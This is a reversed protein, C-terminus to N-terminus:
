RYKKLAPEANKIVGFWYNRFSFGNAKAIVRESALVERTAVDFWVLYVAGCGESKVFRDVIFVLGLGSTKSMKYSRVADAIDKSTIHTDKVLKGDERIVQDPKALKNRETMGSTDTDINKKLTATLTKIREQMFLGNWENLFNPFIKEPEKFDLTGYMRVMSYDLGTWIVTDSKPLSPTAAKNAALAVAGTLLACALIFLRKTM